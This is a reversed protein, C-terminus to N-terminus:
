PSLVAAPDVQSARRAPLSCALLAIMGLVIIAAAIVAPDLASLGFVQGALVGRLLFAGILGLAVGAGLLVVGERLVLEVVGRTTSGLAMRIGIERSRQTVLYALVGYIGIAALFLSVLGFSTALLMAARRPMLARATYEEM